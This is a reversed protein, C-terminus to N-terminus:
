RVIRKFQGDYLNRRQRKLYFAVNVQEREIQTSDTLAAPAAAVYNRNVTRRKTNRGCAPGNWCPRWSETAGFRLLGLHHGLHCRGDGVAPLLEPPLKGEPSPKLSM